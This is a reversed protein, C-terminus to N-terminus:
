IKSDILGIKIAEEYGMFYDRQTRKKMDELTSKGKSFTVMDSLIKDQLYKSENFDIEIDHITGYMGSSVSHIMIRTNETCKRTGTGSALLYAGMSACFEIGHTNVKSEISYIVDKIALGSYVSGGVSSIYLDIPETPNDSNLWLLQMIINTCASNDIEGNLYIIRNQLLKTPLDFSKSTRGLKEIVSPFFSM